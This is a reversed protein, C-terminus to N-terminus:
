FSNPQIQSIALFQKQQVWDRKRSSLIDEDVPLGCLWLPLPMEMIAGPEKGGSLGLEVHGGWQPDRLGQPLAKISAPDLDLEVDLHAPTGEWGNEYYFVDLNEGHVAYKEINPCAHLLAAIAAKSSASKKNPISHFQAKELM